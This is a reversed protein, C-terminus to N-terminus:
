ANLRQSFEGCWEDPSLVPWYYFSDGDGDSGINPPYRRCEGHEAQIERGANQGLNFHVCQSCVNRVPEPAQQKRRTM